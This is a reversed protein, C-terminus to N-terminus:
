CCRLAEQGLSCACDAMRLWRSSSSGCSSRGGRQGKGLHQRHGQQQRRAEEVQQQLRMEGIIISTVAVPGVALQKSTGVLAYAMCPLFAGYLGYVAPVGALTAYSLGQAVIMFGVSMGAIIDGQFPFSLLFM